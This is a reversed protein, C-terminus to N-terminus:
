HDIISKFIGPLFKEGYDKEPNMIRFRDYMEEFPRGAFDQGRKVFVDKLIEYDKIMCVWRFWIYLLITSKKYFGGFMDEFVNVLKNKWLAKVLDLPVAYM